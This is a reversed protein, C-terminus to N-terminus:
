GPRSPSRQPLPAPSESLSRRLLVEAHSVQCALVFANQPFLVLDVEPSHTSCAPRGTMSLINRHTRPNKRPAAVEGGGEWEEPVDGGNSDEICKRHHLQHDGVLRHAPLPRSGLAWALHGRPAAVPQPLAGTCLRGAQPKPALVPGLDHTGPEWGM